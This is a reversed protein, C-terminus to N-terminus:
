EHTEVTNVKKSFTIGHIYYITTTTSLRQQQQQQQQQQYGFGVGQLFGM